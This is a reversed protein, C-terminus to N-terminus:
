KSSSSTRVSMVNTGATLSQSGSSSTGPNMDAAMAMNATWAAPIWKFGQDVASGAATSGYAAEISYALNNTTSFNCQLGPAQGVSQNGTYTDPTFNSSPCILAGP